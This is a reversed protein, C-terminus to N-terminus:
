IVSSQCQFSVFTGKQLIPTLKALEMWDRRPERHSLHDNTRTNTSPYLCVTMSKLTVESPLDMLKSDSSVNARAYRGLMM